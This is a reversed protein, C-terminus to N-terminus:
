KKGKAFELNVSKLLEEQALKNGSFIGSFCPGRETFVVCGCICASSRRSIEEILEQLSAEILPSLFVPTPDQYNPQDSM